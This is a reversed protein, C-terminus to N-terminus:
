HKYTPYKPLYKEKWCRQGVVFIIVSWVTVGLLFLVTGLASPPDAKDLLTIQKAFYFLGYSWTLVLVVSLIANRLTRM